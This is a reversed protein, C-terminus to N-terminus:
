NNSIKGNGKSCFNSRSSTEFKFFFYRYCKIEGKEESFSNEELDEESNIIFFFFRYFNLESLKSIKMISFSVLLHLPNIHSNSRVTHSLQVFDYM